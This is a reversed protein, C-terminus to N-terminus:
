EEGQTAGTLYSKFLQLHLHTRQSARVMLLIVTGKCENDIRKMVTVFDDDRKYSQSIM